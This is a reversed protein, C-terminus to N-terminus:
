WPGWLHRAGYLYFLRKIAKLELDGPQVLGMKFARAKLVEGSPNGVGLWNDIIEGRLIRDAGTSGSRSRGSGPPDLQPIDRM